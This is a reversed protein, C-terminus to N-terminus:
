AEVVPWVLLRCLNQRAESFGHSWAVALEEDVLWDNRGGDILDDWNGSSEIQVHHAVASSTLTSLLLPLLKEALSTQSELVVSADGAERPADDLRLGNSTCSQQIEYEFPAFPRCTAPSFAYLSQTAHYRTPLRKM